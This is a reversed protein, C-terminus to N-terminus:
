IFNVGWRNARAMHMIRMYSATTVNNHRGFYRRPVSNWPRHVVIDTTEGQGWAWTRVIIDIRAIM